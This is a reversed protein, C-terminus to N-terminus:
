KVLYSPRWNPCNQQVCYSKVRIVSHYEMSYICWLKQIWRNIPVQITEVDEGDDNCGLASRACSLPLLQPWLGCLGSSPSLPCIKNLFNLFIKLALHPTFRGKWESARWKSVKTLAPGLDGRPALCRGLGGLQTCSARCWLAGQQGGPDAHLSLQAHAHSSRKRAHSVPHLERALRMKAALSFGRGGWPM